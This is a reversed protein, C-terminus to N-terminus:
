QKTVPRAQTAMRADRRRVGRVLKDILAMASLESLTIYIRRGGAPQLWLRLGEDTEEVDFAVVGPQESLVEISTDSM